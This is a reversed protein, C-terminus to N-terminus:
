QSHLENGDQNVFLHKPLMSMGLNDDYFFQQSLIFNFKVRERNYRGYKIPLRKWEFIIDNM